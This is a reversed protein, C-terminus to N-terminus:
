TVQFLCFILLCLFLIIGTWALAIFSFFSFCSLLWYHSSILEQWDVRCDDVHPEVGLKVVQGQSSVRGCRPKRMEWVPCIISARSVAQSLSLLVNPLCQCIPLGWFSLMIIPNKTECLIYELLNLCCLLKIFSPEPFIYSALSNLRHDPITCLQELPLGAEATVRVSSPQLISGTPAGDSHSGSTPHSYQKVLSSEIYCRRGQM